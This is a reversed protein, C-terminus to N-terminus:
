ATRPKRRVRSSDDLKGSLMLAGIAVGPRLAALDGMSLPFLAIRRTGTVDVDLDAIAWRKFGRASVRFWGSSQATLKRSAPGNGTRVVIKGSEREALLEVAAPRGLSEYAAPSLALYTSSLTARPEEDAPRGRRRRPDVFIEFSVAQPSGSGPVERRGSRGRSGDRRHLRRRPPPSDAQQQRTQAM